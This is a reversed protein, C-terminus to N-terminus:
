KRLRERVEMLAFGLLNLGRWRNPTEAYPSDGALGIGWIKDVPSAEVLVRDKTGLLFTKLDEHQCFKAANGRVVIEFRAACWAAEDFHAVKRGLMKAERPHKVALIRSRIDEDGFLRAKEAMMFHEATFFTEGDVVFAAHWWQSFCSKTISGDKSAAHGWFFLWKPREGSTMAAILSEVDRASSTLAPM